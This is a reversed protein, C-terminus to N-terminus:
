FLDAAADHGRERALDAPSKGQRNKLGPARTRPLLLRVTEVQGAEAAGHLALNGDLNVADADAGRELLLRV